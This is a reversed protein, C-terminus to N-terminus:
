INIVSPLFMTIVRIISVVINLILVGKCFKLTSKNVTDNKSAMVYAIIAIVLGIPFFMLTFFSVIALIVATSNKQMQQGQGSVSNYIQSVPSYPSSKSFSQIAEAATMPRNETNGSVPPVNQATYSNQVAGSQGYFGSQHSTYTNKAGHFDQNSLDEGRGSYNIEQFNQINESIDNKNMSATDPSDKKMDALYSIDTGYDDYSYDDNDSLIDSGKDDSTYGSKPFPTEPFIEDFSMETINKNM